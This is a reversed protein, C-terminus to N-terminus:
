MGYRHRTTSPLLQRLVHHPIRGILADDGDTVLQHLKTRRSSPVFWCSCFPPYAGWTSTNRVESRWPLSPEGLGYTAYAVCAVGDQAMM